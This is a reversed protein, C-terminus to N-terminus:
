SVKLENLSLSINSTEVVSVADHTEVVSVPSAAIPDYHSCMAYVNMHVCSNGMYISNHFLLVCIHIKGEKEEPSVRNDTFNVLYECEM